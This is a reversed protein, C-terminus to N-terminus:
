VCFSSEERSHVFQPDKEDVGKRQRGTERALSSHNSQKTEDGVFM